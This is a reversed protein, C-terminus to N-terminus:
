REFMMDREVFFLYRASIWTQHPIEEFSASDIVACLEGFSLGRSLLILIIWSVNHSGVDSLYGSVIQQGKTSNTEMIKPHVEFQVLFQVLERFIRTGYQTNLTKSCPYTSISLNQSLIPINKCWSTTFKWDVGEQVFCCRWHKLRRITLSDEIYNQCVLRWM